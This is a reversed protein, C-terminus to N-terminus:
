YVRKQINLTKGILKRYFSIKFFRKWPFKKNILLSNIIKDYELIKNDFIQSHEVSYYVKMKSLIFRLNSNILILDKYNNSENNEHRRYVAMPDPMYYFPGSRALAINLVFDDNMVQDFWDPFFVFKRVFIEGNIPMFWKEEVINKFTHYLPFDLPLFYSSKIKPNDFRNIVNHFCGVYEPNSELFNVQKQLKYPDIWYDDGDCLAIYKSNSAEIIRRLNKAGGGNIESTIIKINENKLSYSLLINQTNDSSCDDGVIIEFLFNTKQMLISELAEAIYKEQNYVRVCVSVLPLEM